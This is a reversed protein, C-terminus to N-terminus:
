ETVPADTSSVEVSGAVVAPIVVATKAALEARLIKVELDLSDRDKLVEEAAARKLKDDDAAAVAAEQLKKVNERLALNETEAAKAREVAKETEAVLKMREAGTELEKIRAMALTNATTQAGCLVRLSANEESFKSSRTILEDRTAEVAKLAENTRWHIKAERKQKRPSLSKKPADPTATPDM